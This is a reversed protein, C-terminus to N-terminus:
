VCTKGLGVPPTDGIRFAVARHDIVIVVGIVILAEHLAM